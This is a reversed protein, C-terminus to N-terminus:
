LSQIVVTREAPGGEAAGDDARFEITRSTTDSSSTSFTVSRLAARFDALPASTAPGAPTFTLVGTSSDYSGDIGAPATFGLIDGPQRTADSIKVTASALNPSDTDSLQLDPDVTVPSGMPDYFTEGESTALAPADNVPTVSIATGASATLPGGSGTNGQDDVAIALTDAGSYDQDPHYVLGDLADNVEDVTGTLTLSATGEGTKELGEATAGTALFGNTVSLTVQVDGSEADVDAISIAGATFTYPADEPTTQTSSPRTISPGDNGPSLSVSRSAPASGGASFLITRSTGPDDSTTSFEVSRLAARYDDLTATGTLTLVGTGADYTGAIDPQNTFHLTDGSVRGAGVTATAGTVATSDVDSVTLGDDVVVTGAQNETFTSVPGTGATVVPLDDVGTITVDVTAPASDAQGDSARYTFSDHATEGPKLANFRGAPDYTVQGGALTLDGTTGTRDVFAVHLRDADADTDNAVLDLAKAHDEDTSVADGVAVPARNVPGTTTPQPQPVAPAGKLVWVARERAFCRSRSSAWRVLGSTGRACFWTKKPGPVKIAVENRHNRVGCESAAGVLRTTGAPLRTVTRRGAATVRLQALSGPVGDVAGHLKVCADVPSEASLRVGTETARKCLSTRAVYRLTGSSKAACGVKMERPAATAAGAVLLLAAVATAITLALRRAYM